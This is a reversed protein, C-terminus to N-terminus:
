LTPHNLFRALKRVMFLETRSMAEETAGGIHPTVLVNRHRTAYEVLRNALPTDIVREDALVDLAAGGVHGSGLAELLAAEDVVQGRSTNVVVAGKPLAALEERGILQRTGPNLDVHITLVDSEAALGALSPKRLVTAPWTRLHPDYAAVRMGFAAGYVAVQQGLRGLGVIGLRKGALDRGKVANRDWHGARVAEVAEPIRRMVGLLLGWTHEATATVTRLFEEEGKLSLVAIRRARAADLDIHDLGTTGSVVVRLQKGAEFVAEDIWHRLRVILIDYASVRELLERRELPGDTIVGLRQLLARAERGYGEPELNLIRYPALLSGSPAAMM